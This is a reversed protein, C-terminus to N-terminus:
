TPAADPAPPTAPHRIKEHLAELCDGIRRHEARLVVTPGSDHMGTKEEFLPFLVREEWLIHRQLGVKFQQFAEKAKAFDAPNWQRFSALLEDLRDHDQALMDYVQSDNM